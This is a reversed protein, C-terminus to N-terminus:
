FQFEKPSPIENDVYGCKKIFNVADLFGFAVYVKFGQNELVELWEKQKTSAKNKGSPEKLEIAINVFEGSKTQNGNLFVFYDPVGASVGIRKNMVGRGVNGGTENPCHFHKINRWKLWNHLHSAEIYEKHIM